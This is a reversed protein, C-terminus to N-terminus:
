GTRRGMPTSRVWLQLVPFVAFLIQASLGIRGPSTSYTAVHEAISRHFVIISLGLELVMLTVFAVVGMAMRTTFTPAVDLRGVIWLSMLWSLTLMVPTEVAVAATEGVRPVLLFIRITGIIFGLVFVIIAYVLGARM